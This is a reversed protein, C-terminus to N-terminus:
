VEEINKNFTEKYCKFIAKLHPKSRTALIRVTEEDKFLKKKEGYRNISIGLKIAESRIFTTSVQREIGEVRSAVDEEWSSGLARPNVKSPSTHKGLEWSSTQHDPAHLNLSYAMHKLADTWLRGQWALMEKGLICPGNCWLMMDCYTCSSYVIQIYFFATTQSKSFIFDLSFSFSGSFAKTLTCSENPLSMIKRGEENPKKKRRKISAVLITAKKVEMM